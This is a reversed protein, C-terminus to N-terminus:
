YATRISFIVFPVYAQTYLKSNTYDMDYLSAFIFSMVFCGCRRFDLQKKIFLHCNSRIM